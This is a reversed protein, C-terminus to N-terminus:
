KSNFPETFGVEEEMKFVFATKFRILHAKVLVVTLQTAYVTDANLPDYSQFM